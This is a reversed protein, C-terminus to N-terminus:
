NMLVVAMMRHLFTLTECYDDNTETTNDSGTRANLDGFVILPLDGLKEIAGLVCQEILSIGSTVETEKYYVSNAPPVYSGLLAGDSETGLRESSLKLIIVNDYDTFRAFM